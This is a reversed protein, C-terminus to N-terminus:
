PDPLDLVILPTCGPMATAPKGLLVSCLVPSRVPAFVAYVATILLMMVISIAAAGAFGFSIVYTVTERMRMRM